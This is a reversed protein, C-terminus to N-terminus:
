KYIEVLYTIDEGEGFIRVKKKPINALQLIKKITEKSRQILKWVLVFRMLSEYTNEDSIQTIYITGGKLLKSYLPKLITVFTKDSIYDMIGGMTILDFNQDAIDKKIFRLLNGVYFECQDAIPQLNNKALRIARENTDHLFLTFKRNKLRDIIRKLHSCGAVSFCLIKPNKKTALCNLILDVEHLIKNRHQQILNSKIVIDEFEYGFTGKESFNKSNLIQHITIYDGVYGLPIGHCRKIFYSDRITGYFDQMLALIDEEPIVDLLLDLEACIDYLRANLSTKFFRRWAPTEERGLHDSFNRALENFSGLNQRLAQTDVIERFKELEVTESM